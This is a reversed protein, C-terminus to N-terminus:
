DKRPSFQKMYVGTSAVFDQFEAAEEEPYPTLIRYRVVLIGAQVAMRFCTFCPSYTSYLSAGDTRAGHRAALAIANEEAHVCRCLGYNAGLPADGNCRRCGGQNCNPTGSPTGNYGSSILTNTHPEVLVAGVQRRVCSSRSAVLDTMQMFYTDWDPRM